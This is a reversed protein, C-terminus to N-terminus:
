RAVDPTRINSFAFRFAADIGDPSDIRGAALIKFGLCPKKSQRLARCMRIPDDAVYTEGVTLRGGLTEKLEAPTRNYKYFSGMFFDTEWNMEEISELIIPNHTAVAALLGQDRVLKLYDRIKNKEGTAWLNDTSVGQHIIGLPGLKALEKTLDASKLMEGSTTLFFQLKGGEARHRKIDAISRENHSFQWTDIGCEQCRRLTQAVNDSSSWEAMCRNLIRNFHSYGYFPNAGIVLRSIEHRGMRIRPLASADSRTGAALAGAALPAHLVDRRSIPMYPFRSRLTNQKLAVGCTAPMASAPMASRYRWNAM